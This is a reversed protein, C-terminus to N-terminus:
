PSKNPYCSECHRICSVLLKIRGFPLLKNPICSLFPLFRSDLIQTSKEFEPVVSKIMIGVTRARYKSTADFVFRRYM